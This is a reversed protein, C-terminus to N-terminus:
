PARNTGTYSFELASVASARCRFKWGAPIPLDRAIIFVADDQYGVRQNKCLYIVTSGDTLIADAYADAAGVNAVQFTRKQMNLAPVAAGVDTISTLGALWGPTLVTTTTM